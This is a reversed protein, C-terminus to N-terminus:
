EAPYGAAEMFPRIEEWAQGFHARYRRWRYRAHGYLPQTVQTRSPTTIRGRRLATEGFERVEDEWPLGLFELLGNVVADFDVVLEEYRIEHVRMGPLARRYQGWLEMVARYYRAADELTHFNAMAVNPAFMQMFGSLVCDAPHRRA